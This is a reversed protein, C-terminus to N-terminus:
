CITTFLDGLELGAADAAGQIEAVYEPVHQKSYQLFLQAEARVKEWDEQEQMRRVSRVLNAKLETGLQFGAEYHSGEVRVVRVRGKNGEQVATGGDAAQAALFPIFLGLIICAALFAIGFRGPATM